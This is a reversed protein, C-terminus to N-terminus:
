DAGSDDGALQQWYVLNHRTTLTDPHEAGLIRLRDSLLSGLVTVAGSADGSRGQWVALDDRTNLTHPHNPGLVRLRDQLLASLRDAAGSANGAEGIALALYHRTILTHLHDHGLVRIRDELLEALATAAGVPDGARSRWVALNGRTSFTDPHDPGLLRLRDTLLEANAAVAGAADGHEGRWRALHHRTSLTMPHDPGLVRQSDELLAEFADVAGAADGSRGRWRAYEHRASLTQSHEPGLVHISDELLGAFASAAGAADGAEGQWYALNHRATLTNSHHFGLIRSADATLATWYDLAQAVLGAEGMSRGARFLVACGDTTLLHDGTAAALSATCARLAQALLADSEVEPWVRVLADAAARTARDLTRRNTQERTARQALAHMRVARPGAAPDHIVVSFRHLNRLAWRADAQDRSTVSASPGTLYARTPECTLVAEPIGNPDLLAVLVALQGALGAPALSDAREVALSWAAATSHAHEDGPDSPLLEALDRARDALLERYAACTIEYNSIVAAAQALALPLHGLDHALGEAQDFVDAKPSVARELKTTLYAVSEAPTFVDVDIRYRGRGALATDRSRTTVLVRGSTGSPWLGTLNAPDALDDLVILWLRDATELWTLLEEAAQQPDGEPARLQLNRAAAAYGTLISARTAATVWVALDVAEENHETLARWTEVALQTKGTGGDGALVSTAGTVIATGGGLLAQDIQARLAPRELFSDALLPARGVRVPWTVAASVGHFHQEVTAHDSIVTGLSHTVQVHPREVWLPAEAAERGTDGDPPTTPSM